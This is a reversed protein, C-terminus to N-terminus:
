TKTEKYFWKKNYNRKGLFYYKLVKITEKSLPYILRSGYNCMVNKSVPKKTFTLYVSLRYFFRQKLFMKFCISPVLCLKWTVFPILQRHSRIQMFTGKFVRSCLHIQKISKGTKSTCNKTTIHSWRCNKLMTWLFFM